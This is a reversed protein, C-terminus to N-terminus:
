DKKSEEENSDSLGSMDRIVETLRSIVTAPWESIASESFIANGEKKTLSLFILKADVGKMSTIKMVPDGSKDIEGTPAMRSRIYDNYVDRGAGTLETIVCPAEDVVVDISKLKTEFKLTDKM